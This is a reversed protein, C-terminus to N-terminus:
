EDDSGDLERLQVRDLGHIYSELEHHRWLSRSLLIDNLQWLVTARIAERGGKLQAGIEHMSCIGGLRRPRVLYARGAVALRDEEGASGKVHSQLSSAALSMADTMFNLRKGILGGRKLARRTRRFFRDLSEPSIRGIIDDGHLVSTVFASNINASACLPAGLAVASVRGRALGRLPELSHTTVTSNNRSSDPERPKKSRRQLKTRDGPVPIEGQLMMAALTAIGGSLSHGVLHVASSNHSRLIPEIQVLLRDAAKFLSPQVSAVENGHHLQVHRPPQELLDLTQGLDCSMGDSIIILLRGNAKQGTEEDIGGHHIGAGGNYKPEFLVLVWVAASPDVRDDLYAANTVNLLVERGALTGNPSSMDQLFRENPRHRVSWVIGLECLECAELADAAAGTRAASRRARGAVSIIAQESDGKNRQKSGEHHTRQYAEHAAGDLGKFTKQAASMARFAKIIKSLDVLEAGAKGDNEVIDQSLKSQTARALLTYADVADGDGGEDDSVYIEISGGRWATTIPLDYHRSALAADVTSTIIPIIRFLLLSCFFYITSCRLMHKMGLDMDISPRFRYRSPQSVCVVAQQLNLKSRTKV